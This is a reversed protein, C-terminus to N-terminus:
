ALLLFGAAINGSAPEEYIASAPPNYNAIRG